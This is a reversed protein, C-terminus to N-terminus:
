GEQEIDDLEREIDFLMTELRILEDLEGVSCVTKHGIENIRKAVRKLSEALMHRYNAREQTMIGGNFTTVM